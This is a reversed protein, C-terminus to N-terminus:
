GEARPTFCEAAARIVAEQERRNANPSLSIGCAESFVTELNTIQRSLNYERLVRERGRAGMQRALPKEGLLTEIRRAYAETDMWPVLFGNEGDILWEKIAGADFAVVPLGFRMAEPGVLGFPEPWVSSVAFVSAELYYDRMQAPPVYGKFHVKGTLGLRASLRECYKRHSGEGLIVCEFPVRVKKL